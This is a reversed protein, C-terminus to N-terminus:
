FVLNLTAAFLASKKFLGMEYLIPLLACRSQILANHKIFSKRHRSQFRLSILSQTKKTFPRIAFVHAHKCAIELNLKLFTYCHLVVPNPGPGQLTEPVHVHYIFLRARTMYSIPASEIPMEPTKLLSTQWWTFNLTGM